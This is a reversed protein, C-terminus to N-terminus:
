FAGFRQLEQLIALMREAGSRGNFQLTELVNGDENSIELSVDEASFSKLIGHALRDFGNSAEPTTLRLQYGSLDAYAIKTTMFFERVIISDKCFAWFARGSKTLSRDVFALLSAGESPYYRRVSEICYLPIEPAMFYRNGDLLERFMERARSVRQDGRPSSVGSGTEPYKRQRDGGSPDNGQPSRIHELLERYAEQILKFQEEARSRVRRDSEFRDPHWIKVLDRYTDNISAPTASRGLSLTVLHKLCRECGCVETGM